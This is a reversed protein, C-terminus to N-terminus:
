AAQDFQDPFQQGAKIYDLALQQRAKVEEPDRSGPKMARARADLADFVQQRTQPLEGEFGM